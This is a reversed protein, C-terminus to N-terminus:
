RRFWSTAFSGQHDIENYDEVDDDRQEKDAYHKELLAFRGVEGTGKASLTRLCCEAWAARGIQEGLEGGVRGDAEHQGGDSEGDKQGARVGVM